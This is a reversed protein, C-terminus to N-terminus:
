SQLQRVFSKSKIKDYLKLGLLTGVLGEIIIIPIFYVVASKLEDAGPLGLRVLFFYLLPITLVNSITLCLYYGSKKYRFLFLILDALLGLTLGIVLKYLGPPGIINTPIALAAYILAWITFVGFKPVIKAGVIAIAVLIITDILLGVGPIGMVAELGVVLAFDLVFVFAGLLAIFVLEKTTFSKLM